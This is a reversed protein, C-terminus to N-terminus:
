LLIFNALIEEALYAVTVGIWALFAVHAYSSVEHGGRVSRIYSSILLANVIVVGILMFRIAPLDYIQTHFASAIEGVSGSVTEAVKRVMEKGFTFGIFFTAVAVVTIAYLIGTLSNGFGDRRKRIRDIRKFNKTVIDGMAKPDGGKSTGEFYMSNFKSILYSGTDASFYDWALSEEARMKLRKYLDQINQTLAGFDKEKLTELINVPTTDRAAASASLTRIFGPYNTDRKKIQNEENWVMLGPIALPILPIALYFPLPLSLAPIVNFFLQIATFGALGAFVILSLMQINGLRISRETQIEEEAWVPDEPITFKTALIFGIESTIFIAISGGILIVPSVGAVFPVIISFIVFFVTAIIMSLFLDRFDKMRDLSDEYMAEYDSIVVDQEDLLFDRVDEGATATRGLRDLFDSLIDSPTRESVHSCAEELSRNWTEILEIVKGIEEALAGYEEEHKALIRFIEIREIDATALVGAHTIFLHMNQDIERKRNDAWIKPYFVGIIPFFISMFYLIYKIPGFLNSFIISIALTIIGIITFPLILKLIYDGTTFGMLQYANQWSRRDERAM